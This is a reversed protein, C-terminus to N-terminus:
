KIKKNILCICIIEYETLAISINSLKSKQLIYVIINEAFQALM